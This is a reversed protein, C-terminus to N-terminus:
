GTQAFQSVWILFGLVTMIAISWGISVPLPNGPGANGGIEKNQAVAPAPLLAVLRVAVRGQGPALGPVDALRSLALGLRSGAADRGLLALEAAENWPDFGLRALASIVTVNYGSQDEGVSAFLFPDFEDGDPHLSDLRSM